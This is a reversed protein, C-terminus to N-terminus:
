APRLLLSRRKLERDLKRQLQVEIRGLEGAPEAQMLWIKELSSGLTDSYDQWMNLHPESFTNGYALRLFTRIYPNPHAELFGPTVDKLPSFKRQGM